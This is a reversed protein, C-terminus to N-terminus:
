WFFASFLIGLRSPSLHLESALLPAAISLNGRDVYNILLFLALLALSPALPGLRQSDRQSSDM